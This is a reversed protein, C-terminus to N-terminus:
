RRKTFEMFAKLAPKAAFGERTFLGSEPCWVCLSYSPPTDRWSFWDIQRINLKARNATFYKFAQRLKKAQKSEGVVLPHSAGGSAWGVETLWYGVNGDGAKASEKRMLEVLLKVTKFSQAYPHVAVGDFRQEFGPRRYLQRLYDTSLMAPARGGLPSYFMGGLIVEATPDIDEIARSAETVLKAYDDVNPEPAYYTPSNQENWIQWAHIPLKPIQPNEAWFSGDPGYRQVSVRLFARWAALALVSRPPAHECNEACQDLQSVWQPTTTVTPLISVGNIAAQGVLPDYASWDEDGPLASPDIASWVFPTRLTGVKAAGMKSYDDPSLQTQPVVGYFSRPPKAASAAPAAVALAFLAAAAFIQFKRMM